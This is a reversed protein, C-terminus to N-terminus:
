KKASAATSTSVTSAATITTATTPTSRSIHEKHKKLGTELESKTFLEYAKMCYRADHHDCMEQFFSVIDEQSIIQKGNGLTEFWPRFFDNKWPSLGLWERITFQEYWSQYFRLWLSTGDYYKEIVLSHFSADVNTVEYPYVHLIIYFIGHEPKDPKTLLYDFFPQNYFTDLDNNHVLMGQATHNDIKKTSSFHSADKHLFNDRLDKPIKKGSLIQVLYRATSDCSSSDKPVVTDITEKIIDYSDVPINQTETDAAATKQQESSATSETASNLTLLPATSAISPQASWSVNNICLLTILLLLKKM